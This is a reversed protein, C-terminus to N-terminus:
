FISVVSTLFRMGRSLKLAVEDSPCTVYVIRAAATSEMVSKLSPATCGLTSFLLPSLHTLLHTFTFLRLTSPQTKSFRFRFPQYLSRTQLLSPIM